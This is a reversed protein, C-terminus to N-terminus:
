YEKAAQQRYTLHANEFIRIYTKVWEREGSYVESLERAEAYDSDSAAHVKKETVSKGEANVIAKAYTADLLTQAKAHKSTLERQYNALFAMILLFKAAREKASALGKPTILILKVAEDVKDQLEDFTM